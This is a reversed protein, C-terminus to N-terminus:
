ESLQKMKEWLGIKGRRGGCNGGGGGCTGGGGGCASFDNRFQTSSIQFNERYLNLTESFLRELLLKDKEGKTGLYPYHHFIYGFISYCDRYYKETDMIHHHWYEDIDKTPVLVKEPFLYSLYLFQKYYKEIKKAKAASWKPGDEKKSVLFSINQLDIKSEFETFNQIIKM